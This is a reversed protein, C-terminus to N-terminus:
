GASFRTVYGNFIRPRGAGHDEADPPLASLSVGGTVADLAIEALSQHGAAVLVEGVVAANTDVTNTIMPGEGM